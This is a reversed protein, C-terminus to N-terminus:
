SSPFCRDTFYRYQLRAQELLMEEGNSVKCGADVARKMIKTVPPNYVIDYLKQHKHFEYGELPDLDEYGRMGCNTTQVFADPYQEFGSFSDATLPLAECELEAALDKAKKLTRNVILLQAGERRLGYAIGKASGGAGIVVIRTGSLDKKNLFKRFSVLFGDIDTNYGKWGDHSSVMTNCSGITDVEQSVSSCHRVVEEKFPVTVSVGRIDLYGALRFFDDLKDVTVPIYVASLSQKRLAANHIHPSKSHMIPNGIVCYVTDTKQISKFRYVSELLEPTIQGPAALSAGAPTSYTWLSGMRRSLIRTPFGYDGMGVVVKKVSSHADAFAFLRRTDDCGKPLVAIKLIDGTKEAIKDFVMELNRPMSDMFHISRVVAVNEGRAYEALRDLEDSGIDDDEDMPVHIDVYAYGLSIAERYKRIFVDKHIVRGGGDQPLRITFIVPKDTFDCPNPLPEDLTLKDYRLEFMDAIRSYEATLHKNERISGCTACVCIM